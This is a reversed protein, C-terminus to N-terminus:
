NILNRYKNIFNDVVERNVTTIDINQIFRSVDGNYYKKIHIITKQQLCHKETIKPYYLNNQKYIIQKNKLRYVLTKTTSYNKSFKKCIDKLSLPRIWLIKMIELESNTINIYM